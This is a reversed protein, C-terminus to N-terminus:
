KLARRHLRPNGDFSDVLYRGPDLVFHEFHAVMGTKDANHARVQGHCVPCRKQRNPYLSLADNLTIPQWYGAVKIECGNESIETMLGFIGGRGTQAFGIQIGKEFQGVVWKSRTM